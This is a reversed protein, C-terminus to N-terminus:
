EDESEETNWIIHVIINGTEPEEVEAWCEDYCCQGDQGAPATQGNPCLCDDETGCAFGGLIALLLVIILKKM